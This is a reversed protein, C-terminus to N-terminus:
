GIPVIRAFRKQLFVEEGTQEGDPNTTPSSAKQYVTVPEYDGLRRPRRRSM